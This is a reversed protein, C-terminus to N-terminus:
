AKAPKTMRNLLSRQRRQHLNHGLLHRRRLHNEKDSQGILM